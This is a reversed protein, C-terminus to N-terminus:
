RGENIVEFDTIRKWGDHGLVKVWLNRRETVLFLKGFQRTTPCRRKVVDGVQM